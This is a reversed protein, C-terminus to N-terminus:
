CTEFMSDLRIINVTLAVSKSILFLYQLQIIFNKMIMENELMGRFVKEESKKYLLLSSLILIVITFFLM